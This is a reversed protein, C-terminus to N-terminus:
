SCSRTTVCRIEKHTGGPRATTNLQARTAQWEEPANRGTVARTAQWEDIEQQTAAEARTAPWDERPGASATGPKSSERAFKSSGSSNSMSDTGDLGAAVSTGDTRLHRCGNRLAATVLTCHLGRSRWFLGELLAAQTVPTSSQASRCRYIGASQQSFHM